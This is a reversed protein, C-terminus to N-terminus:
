AIVRQRVAAALLGHLMQTGSTAGLSLVAQVDTRLAPDDSTGGLDTVLQQLPEPFGDECAAEIMQASPLTTHHRLQPLIRRLERLAGASTRSAEQLATLGALLGVLVDDGSPTSGCGLGVLDLLGDSQGSVEWQTLIANIGSQSPEDAGRGPRSRLIGDILPRKALARAAAEEDYPAISLDPIAAEAPRLYAGNGFRIQGDSVSVPTDIPLPEITACAVAWPHLPVAGTQVAAFGPDTGEDFLLNFGHRFASVVRGTRTHATLYRYAHRGVRIACLPSPCSGNTRDAQFTKPM